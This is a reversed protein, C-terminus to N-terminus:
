YTEKKKTRKYVGKVHMRREAEWAHVNQQMNLWFEPTTGLHEAFLPAWTESFPIKEEIFDRVKKENWGEGLEEAFQKPTLGLPGLFEESLIKGLHTPKRRKPLVSKRRKSKWKTLVM